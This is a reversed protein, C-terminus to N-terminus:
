SAMNTFDNFFGTIYKRANYFTPINVTIKQEITKKGGEIEKLTSIQPFEHTIQSNKTQDYFNITWTRGCPGTFFNIHLSWEQNKQYLVESGKLFVQTAM